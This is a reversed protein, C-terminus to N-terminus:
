EAALQGAAPRGIAAIRAIVEDLQVRFAEFGAHPAIRAEDMYLSRDIEVQVAHQRRSPRGYAQTVYAGAFPTNRAVRLGASTFAAEIGAMIRPSAAAGFRDGLVVHPRKRGPGGALEIAEHPMSHCDVLVSEGFRSLSEGLLAQLAAHYPSWYTEIRQRAEDLGIKGDYIARGGAVVRPIVGLGSAVRPNHMRRAVGEILAPDLEDSARNLDVWARPARAALLPAGHAPARDFLRDVFADESSRIQRADLGSRALLSPPYHRGSHPSAFVVCSTHAAPRTLDFAAMRM